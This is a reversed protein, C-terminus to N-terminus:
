WVSPMAMLMPGLREGLGIFTIKPITPYMM